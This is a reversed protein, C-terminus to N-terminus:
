LTVLGDVTRVSRAHLTHHELDGVVTVPHGGAVALLVWLSSSAHVPLTTGSPDVVRWGTTGGGGSPLVTVADLVVPIETTWPDAAVAGAWRAVADAISEGAADGLMDPEAYRTGVIGRVAASGPYLHVDADLTTGPVLSADLPQQRAGFSLVLVSRGSATGRLHVRRVTLRDETSDHLALVDWRDRVPTGALVDETRVPYGIRTRVTAALDAPLSDLRQHAVVLLRLLALDELLRGPWGDGSAAVSSLQRVAGALGPAQADVLRAAVPETLAYGAHDAGAIGTRAQDRLWLDLDAVGGSVQEGRRATRRAAAAPDAPAAGAAAAPRAARKERAELWEAAFASPADQDPVNGSSWLLLLGLSHKCPFKRSPCSCKFALVALDIVTQYPKKGSGACLGWLAHPSASAGTETWSAPGSLKRGAAVSAADPAAALM